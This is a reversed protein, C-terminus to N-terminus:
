PLASRPPAYVNQDGPLRGIYDLHFSYNDGGASGILDWADRSNCRVIVDDSQPRGSGGDKICWNADPGKVNFRSHGYHVVAVASAFFRNRSDRSSRSGLNAGTGDHVSRIISLAESEPISRAAGVAGGGGTGGGGGGGGTGGGGGGTPANPTRFAAWASRSSEVEGNTGYARWYITTAYPAAGGAGVTTTGGSGAGVSLVTGIAGADPALSLEIRYIVPGAPGTIRGNRLVFAPTLTDIQGLPAVPLPTEIVVPETITFSAAASYPGTNAGDLARSRWYYTGGAGLTQTLRYATRGNPGPEIRDAQHLVQSFTTDAALQFQLTLPRVGSTGANEILFDLPQQTSLLAQGVFPQLAKPATIAVGPIPGAIDPSLPNASKSQQCAAALTALLGIGVARLAYM